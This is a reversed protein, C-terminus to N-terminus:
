AEKENLYQTYLEPNEALAETFAKHYSTSGASKDVKSKAIADLRGYSSDSNAEVSSGIEQFVDGSAIAENASKLVSEIKGALKKDLDNVTKLVVGLEEANMGPLNPYLESAKAVYEKREREDRERKIVAELERNAKWLREVEAKVNAPSDKLSKAIETKELEEEEDASEVVEEEVSEEAPPAEAAPAPAEAEPAPADEEEEQKKAEEEEEGKEAEEEEEGKEAFAKAVIAVSDAPSVVDSYASILKLAGAIATAGEENIGAEKIIQDFKEENTSPADLVAHLTESMEDAETKMIPFRGKKNAGAPVVSVELTELVTLATIAM